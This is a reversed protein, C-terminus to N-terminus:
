HNPCVRLLAGNKLEASGRTPLLSFGANDAKTVGLNSIIFIANNLATDACSAIVPLAYLHEAEVGRAASVSHMAM